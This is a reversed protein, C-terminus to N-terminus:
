FRNYVQENRGEQGWAPTLLRTRKLARITIGNGPTGMSAAIAATIVAILVPDDQPPPAATDASAAAAPAQAVGAKTAARAAQRAAKKEAMVAKKASTWKILPLSIKPYVWTIVILCVLAAFVILVGVLTVSGGLSLAQGTTLDSTAAAADSDALSIINNLM